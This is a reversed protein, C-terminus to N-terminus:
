VGGRDTGISFVKGRAVESKRLPPSTREGGRSNIEEKRSGGGGGGKQHEVMFSLKKRGQCCFDEGEGDQTSLDV